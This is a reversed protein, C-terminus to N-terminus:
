EKICRVNCGMYRNHKHTNTYVGGGPGFCLTIAFYENPTLSWYFGNQGTGYYHGILSGSAPYWTKTGNNIDFSIGYNMKDFETKCFGATEWIGYSGGEPIRYGMPCPDYITKDVLWRSDDTSTTSSYLWDRNNSNRYIFTM